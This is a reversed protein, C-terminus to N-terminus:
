CRCHGDECGPVTRTVRELPKISQALRYLDENGDWWIDLTALEQLKIHVRITVYDNDGHRISEDLEILKQVVWLYPHLQAKVSLAAFRQPLDADGNQSLYTVSYCASAGSIFFIVFYLSYM